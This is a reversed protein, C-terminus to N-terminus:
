LGEMKKAMVKAEFFLYDVEMDSQLNVDSGVFYFNNDNDLCESILHNLLLENNSTVVLAIRVTRTMTKQGNPVQRNAVIARPAKEGAFKARAILKDIVIQETLTVDNM